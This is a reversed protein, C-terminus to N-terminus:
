EKVLKIMETAGNSSLKVHYIGNALESINVILSRTAFHQTLVVRGTLDMIEITKEAGNDLEVTISNHAPNPYVNLSGGISNSSLATCLSVVITASTTGTCGSIPSVFTYIPTFTGSSAGPTFVSGSVNSGTIVGGPPTTALTSTNGNVCVITPTAILNVIPLAVVTVAKTAMATCSGVGTGMTTYTINATPSVVTTALNSGTNWTYTSLGNATLTLSSGACVTSPGTISVSVTTVSVTQIGSGVCGATTGTATFISTVSPSVSISATTAGNSWSYSSAGSATLIVNSGACVTSPGTISVSVSIVNVSRSASGTCGNADTGSVNYITNTTPSVINVATNPGNSWSYSNAGSATLTLSNGLCVVSAGAIAVTPTNVNITQSANASCGVSTGNVSYITNVSPTVSISATTAGTSWSYTTAGSATLTASNGACVSTSGAISVSPTPNVNVIIPTRSASVCGGSLGIIVVQGNGSQVGASTTGGLVGGIYSSGGAGSQGSFSGAYIGISGVTGGGVGGTAGAQSGGQNSSLEIGGNGGLGLSGPLGNALIATNSYSSIGGSGGSVQDGGTPLIISTQPWSAGGGGGYYGGGGGGGSGRGCTNIRNGAAGGGGGAVLVRNSLALGNLRIDSAGGGNGGVATPCATNSAIGGGNFGNSGGVYINLVDGPTVTLIGAASGGLGGLVGQGNTGGQAGAAAVTLQTVGPPVIITQVSGTFVLTTTGGLGAPVFSEAYYTTTAVATTNFNAGSASTGTLVGGTPSTYWNISNGPSIANLTLPAGACVTNPTATLSFPVVCQAQSSHTPLVTIGALLWSYIKKM